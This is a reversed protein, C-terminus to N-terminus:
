ASIKDDFLASIWGLIKRQQFSDSIRISFIGYPHINKRIKNSANKNKSVYTKHFQITPIGSLTSWYELATGKDLNDHIWIAGRFKEEPIQCFEKFWMMMFTILKSDSNTFGISSEKKYGEGVYLSLGTLFRDRKNLSGIEIVAEEYIKKTLEHRRIRKNDAAVLSGKHQGSEKNNQLRAKQLNTLEIDRCWLSLTSKSVTVKKSIEKYSLGERRLNMALNKEELKGWYGM